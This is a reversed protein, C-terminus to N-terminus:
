SRRLVTVRPDNEVAVQTRSEQDRVTLKFLISPAKKITTRTATKTPAMTVTAMPATPASPIMKAVVVIVALGLVGAGIVKVVMPLGSSDDETKENSEGPMPQLGSAVLTYDVATGTDVIRGAEPTQSEVRGNAPGSVSGARLGAKALRGDATKESLKVLSPVAVRTTAPTGVTLTIAVYTGPVVETGALPSQSAVTSSDTGPGSVDGVQLNEQSLIQRAETLTKGFINPVILSPSTMTVTVVTGAAVSKGAPPSQQAATGNANGTFRAQLRVAELKQQATAQNDGEVDPVQVGDKQGAGIAGLVTQLWGPPNDLTILLQSNGPVVSTNAAPTQSVVVGGSVGQPIISRFMPRKNGPVVASAEVQELTKGKFDPVRILEEAAFLLACMSLFLLACCCRRLSM